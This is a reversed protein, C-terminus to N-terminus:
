MHGKSWAQVLDAAARASEAHNHPDLGLPFGHKGHNGGDGFTARAQAFIHRSAKLWASIHVLKPLNTVSQCAIARSPVRLGVQVLSPGFSRYTGLELAEIVSM